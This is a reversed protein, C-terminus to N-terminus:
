HVKDNASASRLKGKGKAFLGKAAVGAKGGFRGAAAMLRKGDEQVIKSGTISAMPGATPLRASNYNNGTDKWIRGNSHFINAHEPVHQMSQIWQDLGGDSHSYTARNDDFAKIRDQQNAINMITRFSRAETPSAAMAPTLQSAASVTALGSTESEHFTGHPLTSSAERFIELDPAAANTLDRETNQPARITEPCAAAPSALKLTDVAESESRLAVTQSPPAKQGGKDMEWSFRQELFPRQPASSMSSVSFQPQHSPLFGAQPAAKSTPTRQDSGISTISSQPQHAPGSGLKAAAVSAPTGQGLDGGYMDDSETAALSMPLQDDSTPSMPLPKIVADASPQGEFNSSRPTLSKVIDEQLKEDNDHVPSTQAPQVNPIPPRPIVGPEISKSTRLPAPFYDANSRPAETDSPTDKGHMDSPTESYSHSVEKTADAYSTSTQQPVAFDRTESRGPSAKSSTSSQDWENESEEDSTDTKRGTLAPGNFSGALATGAAAAAAFASNLPDTQWSQPAKATPISETSEHGLQQGFFSPKQPHESQPTQTGPTTTFSQWGGPLSPRFSETREQQIPRSTNLRDQGGTTDTVPTSRGSTSEYKGALGKVTGKPPSEARTIPSNFTPTAPNSSLGLKTNFQNSHAQWQKYEESVGSTQSASPSTVQDSPLRARGRERNEPVSAALEEANVAAVVGQQPQIETSNRFGALRAPSNAGRSPPTVDRRYGPQIVPPSPMSKNQLTGAEGKITSESLPRVSTTSVPEEPIPQDTVPPGSPGGTLDPKRSIIPSLDSTSASNSRPLTDATSIPSSPQRNQSEDFAQEVVSRYGVSAQHNLGSAQDAQPGVATYQNFPLTPMPEDSRTQASILQPDFVSMRGLPPLSSQYSFASSPEAEDRDDDATSASVPDPRDTYVSSANTAQRHVGDGQVSPHSPDATKLMNDFGYESKREQVTDLTPKLRRISDSDEQPADKHDSTATKVSTASDRSKTTDLELSPRQSESSRREREKEEEFRRYIDAPRIFPLPKAPASPSTPKVEDSDQSPVIASPLPPQEQSLSSKRPPRFNNSTNSSRSDPRAPSGQRQQPIFGGPNSRNGSHSRQYTGPASFPADVSHQGRSSPRFGSQSSSTQGQTSVHLAPHQAYFRQPEDNLPEPFSPNQAPPLASDFGNGASVYRRDDGRDFSTRGTSRPPSPNTFSRNPPALQGGWNPRQAPAPMSPPPEDYTGYGDDGWDDDDYTPRAADRWKQTVTRSVNPKYSFGGGSSM